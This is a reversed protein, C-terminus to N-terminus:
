PARTTMHPLFRSEEIRGDGGDATLANRCNGGVYCPFLVHFSQEVRDHLLM